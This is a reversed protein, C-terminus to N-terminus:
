VQTAASTLAHQGVPEMIASARRAGPLGDYFSRNGGDEAKGEASEALAGKRSKRRQRVLIGVSGGPM